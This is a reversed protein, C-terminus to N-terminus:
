RHTMAPRRAGFRERSQFRGGAAVPTAQFEKGIKSLAVVSIVLSVWIINAPRVLNSEALNMLLLVFGMLLLYQADPDQGRVVARISKVLVLLVQIAALAVGVIGLELLLDLWGNHAHPAQWGIANWIMDVRPSTEVWFAGFGYGLWLRDEIFSPLMAWLEVRGTLTADRGLLATIAPLEYGIIVVAPAFVLILTTWIIIGVGVRRHMSRIMLCIFPGMLGIAWSTRSESLFLLAACLLLGLVCILFQSIKGSPSILRYCFTLTGVAMIEGLDNKNFFIGRWGIPGLPDAMGLDPMALAVLLSAIAMLGVAQMVLSVLDRLNYRAGVYWAWLTTTALSGARRLTIDPFDSWIASAFALTLLAILLSLAPLYRFTAKAHKLVLILVVALVIATSITNLSNAVGVATPDSDASTRLLLSVIGGCQLAFIVIHVVWELRKM